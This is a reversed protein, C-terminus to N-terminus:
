REFHRYKCEHSIHRDTESFNNTKITQIIEEITELLKAKLSAIEDPTGLFAASDSLDNVYWYSLSNVKEKFEEQAATQYILLQQKDVPSLKQKAQGTKYDVIDISGDANLDGRDIKGTFKYDGIKLKFPKELFKPLKPDKSFKEYFNELIKLGRERYEKKNQANPYWDDVWSEQYFTKLLDKKPLELENAKKGFLDAQKVANLQIMTRLYKEFTKHITVGFSLQAEGPLPLHYVYKYKYELPCHLFCSLQSFSFTQPIPLPPGMQPLPPQRRFFVEGAPASKTRTQELGLEVLFRSPKKHATGGYEDAWTLYLFRKARTAAVYFLRREEM